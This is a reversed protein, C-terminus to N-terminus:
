FAQLFGASFRGPLGARTLTTSETAVAWDFRLVSSNLQPILWRFGLGLDHHPLLSEFAAAADGLDYFLLAGFRQSFIALPASRLEAHAVFQTTGEFDGIAYGRLGTTGGLFYRGRHTDARLSATETSLVMRIGRYMPPSAVYVQASLSQDVLNGTRVRASSQITASAYGDGSGLAWSASASFPIATTSAGFAPIGYGIELAISPGLRRSERLDFTDLNRFVGYRAVFMQYRAYPESRTESLPAFEALFEQASGPASTSSPFESLVSSTRSDMRYGFSVRQVIGADDADGVHSFSRVVSADLTTINRRFIYPLQEIVDPTSKLDEVRLRNGRFSRVVADQHTVDVGAGWRSALSFLPYRLSFLENNGEYHSTDRAYWATATALLTMRTGLVNPDFYTPGVGMRGQDMDFGVSLFKRWGFLNNESLSTSLMSLTNQQFEFNTNFRLSWVDRTVALLDVTGPSSSVVPVIAVVSSLEPAGFTSRNAIVISPPAQLNRITEDILAQDFLQGPKVLLERALANTRTTRHFVNLLQFYWDRKSFVDQNVIHIRGIRKGEPHPDMVLSLGVRAEDVSEQELRGLAAPAAMAANNRFCSGGIAVLAITIAAIVTNLATSSTRIM